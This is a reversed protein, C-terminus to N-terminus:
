LRVIKFHQNVSTFNKHDVNRNDCYSNQMPLNKFSKYSIKSPVSENNLVTDIEDFM